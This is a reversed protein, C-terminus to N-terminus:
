PKYELHCQTLGTVAAVATALRSRHCQTHCAEMCMLASPKKLMLQGVMAIADRHTALISREYSDFLLKRTESAEINQRQKSVIGLDPFHVYDINLKGCLRSLTSKHFGYRRSIPNNRVDILQTIGAQILGNLFGDVLLGEYGVTYVACDAIPRTKLKRIESNVTFAPFRRYVYDILESNPKGKYTQVIRSADKLAVPDATKATSVGTETLSWTNGVENLHNERVLAAVEQYICFSYPGYKYPLFQYFASGGHSSTEEKLLFAWKIVEMHSARRGALDLMALIIRQRHLM